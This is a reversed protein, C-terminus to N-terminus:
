DTTNSSNTQSTLLKRRKAKGASSWILGKECGQFLNLLSIDANYLEKIISISRISLMEKHPSNSKNIHDISAKPALENMADKLQDFNILCDVAVKGNNNIWLFQPAWGPHRLANRDKELLSVVENITRTKCIEYDPHKGYISKDGPISSHWFSKKMRAYNYCSVLREMPDRLVAFNIYTGWEQPHNERYYVWSKHSTERANLSKELSSGANKPIHVFLLKFDDSIPM